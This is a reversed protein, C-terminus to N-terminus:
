SRINNNKNIIKIERTNKMQTQRHLLLLLICYFYILANRAYLSNTPTNAASRTNMTDTASLLVCACM